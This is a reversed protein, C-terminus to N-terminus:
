VVGGDIIEKIVYPGLWHMQFKGLFKEFKNDYLLVLDNVKSTHLKIHRDHWAKEREKQVQQHFRALFRDKELETLQVLKEELARHDVMGIFAVIRLSPVIYEMPMVVEIGYVLRFPTQGILKKCTTRYAWLAAPIRVDWDNRQANYVNTLVNELINNVAEVTGNAQPHYSTSKQHYVQFEEALASITENLFHTGHDSMLVKPCGFRTLVYEFLFKTTTAGICDKALQAKVWRTLYKTATIIYQVGTKKGAPQIPGVFVIAWKEFPQLSVQLNLPLENRRSPRGTWDSEEMPEIIGAALM